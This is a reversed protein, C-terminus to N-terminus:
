FPNSQGEPRPMTDASLSDEGIFKKIGYCQATIYIDMLGDARPLLNVSSVRVLRNAGSIQGLLALAESYSGQLRISVQMMEVLGAQPNAAAAQEEAAGTAAQGELLLRAAEGAPYAVQLGPASPNDVQAATVPSVSFSPLPVAAARALNDFYIHVMDSTLEPFFRASDQVIQSELARSEQDITQARKLDLEAQQLLFQAESHQESLEALKTLQPSILLKSGGVLVVVASLLILLMRERPTITM